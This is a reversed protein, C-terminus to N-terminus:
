RKLELIVGSNTGPKVTAKLPSRTINAYDAPLLNKGSRTKEEGQQVLQKLEVTVIYDGEPAGDRDSYTTLHFEGNGDTIAIPLTISNGQKPHFTVQAEAVAQQNLFVKGNVPYCAPRKPGSSCGAVICAIVFVASLSFVARLSFTTM